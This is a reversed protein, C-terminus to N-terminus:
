LEMTSSVASATKMIGHIIVLDKKPGWDSLILSIQTNIQNHRQYLESDSQSIPKPLTTRALPRSFWRYFM